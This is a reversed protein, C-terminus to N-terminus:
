LVLTKNAANSIAVPGAVPAQLGLYRHWSNRAKRRCTARAQGILLQVQDHSTFLMFGPANHLAEQSTKSIRGMNFLFRGLM